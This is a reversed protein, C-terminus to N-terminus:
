IYQAEHLSIFGDYTDYRKPGNFDKYGCMDIDESEFDIISTLQPRYNEALYKTCEERRLGFSALSADNIGDRSM